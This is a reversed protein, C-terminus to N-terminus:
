RGEREIVASRTQFKWAPQCIVEGDRRTVDSDRDERVVIYTRLMLCVNTDRSIEDPNALFQRRPVRRHLSAAQNANTRASSSVEPASSATVQDTACCLLSSALLFGCLLCPIRM